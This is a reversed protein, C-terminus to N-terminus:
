NTQPNREEERKKKKLRTDTAGGSWSSFIKHILFFTLWRALSSLLICSHQAMDRAAITLLFDQIRLFHTCISLIRNSIIFFGNLLVVIHSHLPFDKIQFCVSLEAVLAMQLKTIANCQSSHHRHRCRVHKTTTRQSILCNPSKRNQTELTRALALTLSQSLAFLM